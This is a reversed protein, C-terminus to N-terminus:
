REGHKARQGRELHRRAAELAPPLGSKAGAAPAVDWQGWTQRIMAPTPFEGRKGRWDSTYWWSDADYYQRILEPTPKPEARSLQKSEGFLRGRNAELDQKCVEALTAAILHLDDGESTPQTARKRTSAGADTTVKKRREKISPPRSAQGTQDVPKVVKGELQDVLKVVTDEPTDTTILRWTTVRGDQINEIFGHTECARAGDLVGQRSLGTMRQLRTLSARAKKRHFGVTLRIVALAVKLEALGMSPLYNDFLDNPTQTFNPSIFGRIKSKPADDTAM